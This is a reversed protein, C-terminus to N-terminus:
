FPQGFFIFASRDGEDTLGGGFILAGLPTDLGLFLSGAYTLTPFGIDAVRSFVNGAEASAGLYIPTSFFGSNDNLNYYAALSALVAHRGQRANRPLGSLNLFGGAFAGGFDGDPKSLAFDGSLIPVLTLDGFTRASVLSANVTRNGLLDPGGTLEGAGNLTFAVGSKPFTFDDLTDVTVAAFASASAGSAPELDALGISPGVRAVGGSVGARLEMSRGFTRGASANAILSDIKVAGLAFADQDFAVARRRSAALNLSVFWKQLADLPQYIETSIAPEDGVAVSTRWEGGWANINRRTYSATVNFLGLSSFDTEYDVNFRLFNNGIDSPEATIGLSAGDPQQLIRYEIRRFLDYGYLDTINRALQEYDLPEGIKVDLASLILRDPSVTKNDLTVSQIVPPPIKLVVQEFVPANRSQEALVLIQEGQAKAAAAGLEILKEGSSFALPSVKRLDPEILVDQPLLSEIERKATEITMFATLQLVVDAFNKIQEAKAPETGLDVVIVIDAGMERAVSVPVNNALGGDILTRGDIEVPPLLGPVAMSAFVARAVDGREFVVAERTELDTAVARFPIALQDFTAGPARQDILSNLKLFLKQGQIIGRPLVLRGNKVGLKTRTSFIQDDTKRRFILRERATSDRFLDNWDVDTAIERLEQPTYGVAYLAGVVAGMSTGSIVDPKIGAAELAEIVGIHAFGRAGGGGLVLGIKPRREEPAAAALEEPAAAAPEQATQQALAPAVGMAWIAVLFAASLPSRLQM